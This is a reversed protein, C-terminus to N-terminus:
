ANAVTASARESTRMADMIERLTEKLEEDSVEISKIENMVDAYNEATIGAEALLKAEAAKRERNREIRRTEEAQMMRVIENVLAKNFEASVDDPKGIEKLARNAKMNIWDLHKVLFENESEAKEETWPLYPSDKYFENTLMRKFEILEPKYFRSRTFRIADKMEEKVYKILSLLNYNTKMPWGETYCKGDAKVDADCWFQWHDSPRANEWMGDSLQGTIESKFLCAAENTKFHITGKM